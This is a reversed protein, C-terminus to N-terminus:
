HKALVWGRLCCLACKLGRLIGVPYGTLKGRRGSVHRKAPRSGLALRRLELEPTVARFYPVFRPDDHM